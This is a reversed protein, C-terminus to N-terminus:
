LKLQYIVHYVKSTHLFFIKRSKEGGHDFHDIIEFRCDGCSSENQRTAVCKLIMPSITDWQKKYLVAKRSLIECWLCFMYSEICFPFYPIKRAKSLFFSFELKTVACSTNAIIDLLNDNNTLQVSKWIQIAIQYQPTVGREEIASEYLDNNSRIKGIMDM